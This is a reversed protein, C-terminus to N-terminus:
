LSIKSSYSAKIDDTFSKNCLAKVEDGEGSFDDLPCITRRHIKNDVLEKIHVINFDGKIYLELIM